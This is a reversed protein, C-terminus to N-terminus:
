TNSSSKSLLYFLFISLSILVRQLTECMTMVAQHFLRFSCVSWIQSPQITELRSVFNILVCCLYCVDAQSFTDLSRNWHAPKIFEPSQAQPSQAQPPLDTPPLLCSSSALELMSNSEAQSKKEKVGAWNKVSRARQFLERTHLYKQLCIMDVFLHFQSNNQLHVVTIISRLSWRTVCGKIHEGSNTLFRRFSSCDYLLLEDVDFNVFGRHYSRRVIVAPLLCM